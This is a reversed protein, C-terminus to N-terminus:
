QTGRQAKKARVRKKKNQTIADNAEERGSVGKIYGHASVPSKWGGLPRLTEMNALHTERAMGHRICHPGDFLVDTPWGDRAQLFRLIPEIRESTYGPFFPEQRSRGFAIFEDHKAQLITRASESFIDVPETMGMRTKTAAPAKIERRVQLVQGRACVLTAVCQNTVDRPRLGCYWQVVAGQALEHLGRANAETIFAEFYDHTLAGRTTPSRNSAEYGNLCLEAFASESTRWPQRMDMAVYVCSSKYSRMTRTAYRYERQAGRKKPKLENPPRIPRESDEILFAIFHEFSFGGIRRVNAYYESKTQATATGGAM